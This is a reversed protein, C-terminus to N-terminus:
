RHNRWPARCPQHRQYLALNDTMQAALDSRGAAAAGAIADRQWRAAEDYEENAAYAMAIAEAADPNPRDGSAQILRAALVRAQGADRAREDPAAALIRTLAQMVVPHDPRVELARALQGRAESYRGSASLIVAAGLSADAVRPDLDLVRGYEALAERADGTRAKLTALQLRAEVYAPDARVAAKLEDTAQREHGPMAAMMLGLSYHAKALRPSLRVAQHFEEFAGRNDGTLALATGLGHHLSAQEPALALGKKFDAVADAYRRQDLARVGRNEYSVASELVESIHEMLPDPPGVETTGRQRLHADAQARDGLARYALGLPYQVVSARPDIALAQEFARVADAYQRRALAARGLGFLAAVSRSDHSLVRAFLPEADAARGQDVYLDGLWVLTAVDDPRLRLAREFAVTARQPDGLLKYVHGLYYPWRADEPALAQANVYSAEAANVFEAALLLSGMEGYAAGLDPSSSRPDASRRTVTDHQTRLQDRVSPALGALDPLPVTRLSARDVQGRAPSASGDAAEVHGDRSSDERCSAFVGALLAVLVGAIARSRGLRPMM